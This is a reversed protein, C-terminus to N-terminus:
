SAGSIMLRRPDGVLLEPLATLLVGLEYAVDGEAGRSAYLGIVTDHEIRGFLCVGNEAELLSQVVPGFGEAAAMQKVISGLSSAMAARKQAEGDTHTDAPSHFLLLGDAGVVLARRLEPVKEVSKDLLEQVKSFKDM